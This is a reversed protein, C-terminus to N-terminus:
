FKASTWIHSIVLAQRKSTVFCFRKFFSKKQSKSDPNCNSPILLAQHPPPTPSPASHKILSLWSSINLISSPVSPPTWFAKNSIAAFCHNLIKIISSKSVWNQRKIKVSSKSVQSQGAFCHNLIKIISSKLVWNQRKM